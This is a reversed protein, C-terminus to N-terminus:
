PRGDLVVDGARVTDGHLEVDGARVVQNTAGPEGAIQPRTV